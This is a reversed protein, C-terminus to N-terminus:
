RNKWVPKRKEVAARLGEQADDLDMLQNLYINVSKKLAGSLPLGITEYLVRKAMQLVPTSQDTIKALLNSVEEALKEEPVVRSVLGLRLADQASLPEGTFISRFLM